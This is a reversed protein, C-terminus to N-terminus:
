KEDEDGSLKNLVTVSFEEGRKRQTKTIIWVTYEGGVKGRQGM